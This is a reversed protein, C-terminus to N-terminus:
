TTVSVRMVVLIFADHLKTSKNCTMERRHATIHVRTLAVPRRGQERRRQQNMPQQEAAAAAAAASIISSDTIM